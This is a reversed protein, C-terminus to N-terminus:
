DSTAGVSRWTVRITLFDITMILASQSYGHLELKPPVTSPKAEHSRTLLIDCIIIKFCDTNLELEGV